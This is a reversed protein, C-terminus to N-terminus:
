KFQWEFARLFQRNSSYIAFVVKKFEFSKLEKSFWSAVKKPDNGFVGCGWAGLVLCEHRHEKAIQLVKAIRRRMITEVMSHNGLGGKGKRKPVISINVAPATVFSVLIPKEMLSGDENKFVPVNPSYIMHDTYFPAQAAQNARYYDQMSEQLLCPYLGSARVISEEQAVSGRLFGGGANKGSAFNLCLISPQQTESAEKGGREKQEERALKRMADLSTLDNVEIVTEYNNQKGKKLPKKDGQQLKGVSPTYLITEAVARKQQQSIVVKVEDNDYCSHTWGQNGYHYRGQDGYHYWGQNLIELTNAAIEINKTIEKRREEPGKYTTRTTTSQEANKAMM